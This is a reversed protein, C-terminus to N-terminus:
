ASRTPKANGGIAAAYFARAETFCEEYYDPLDLRVKKAEDPTMENKLVERFYFLAAVWMEDLRPPVMRRDSDLHALFKDRYKRVVAIQTAFEEKSMGVFKYLASEFNAPNSVVKGWYQHENKDGFMKCWELVATDLSNNNITIWFTSKPGSYQGDRFGARYHAMNRAFLVCLQAVRRLREDRTLPPDTPTNMFRLM